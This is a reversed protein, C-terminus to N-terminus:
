WVSARRPEQDNLHLLHNLENLDRLFDLDRAEIDAIIDMNDLVIIYESDKEIIKLKYKVHQSSLCKKFIYKM